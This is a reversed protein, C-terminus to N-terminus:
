SKNTHLKVFATEWSNLFIQYNGDALCINNLKAPGCKTLKIAIACDDFVIYGTVTEVNMEQSSNSKVEKSDIADLENCDFSIEFSITESVLCYGNVLPTVKQDFMLKSIKVSLKSEAFKKM